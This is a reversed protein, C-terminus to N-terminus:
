GVGHVSMFNGGGVPIPFMVDTDEGSRMEGYIVLKNIYTAIKRRKYVSIPVFNQFIIINLDSESRIEKRIVKVLLYL